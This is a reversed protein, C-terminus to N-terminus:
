TLWGGEGGLVLKAQLKFPCGCKRLSTMTRVLNKKSTRYNESKEYSILVFSIKGRNRTSTDSRMIRTVCDIDM